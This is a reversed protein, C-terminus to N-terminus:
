QLAFQATVAAHDSFRYNIPKFEVSILHNLLNENVLIYDLQQKKRKYIYSYRDKRAVQETVDILDPEILDASKQRPRRNDPNGTITGVVDVYKDSPKLANFDGGVILLNDPHRNQFRQIWRAVSEAQRKRKSAVRQGKTKSRLGRMSRLHLNMVTICKDSCVEIILPPRSFLRSKNSSYPTNKYISYLSKMRWNDKVLYGVDIGSSDNGEILYPTYVISYRTKLLRSVDQLVDINEVEQLMVLDAKKYDTTIIGALQKVRHQYKKSSLREEKNGDDKDDFFRNLNQSVVNFELDPKASAPGSYLYLSQFIFVFIVGYQPM